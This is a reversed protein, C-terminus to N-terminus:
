GSLPQNQPKYFAIANDTLVAQAATEGLTELIIEIDHDQFPIPARTGPLDTGFMLAKPNADHLLSIADAAAFDVRGFGTAKVRVGAEVLKVLTPLGAKKLGLHDICVAPLRHITAALQGLNSADVYLEVHWGVLEHVRSAMSSLHRLDESGGRYLNFRLARVGAKNLEIIQYDPADSPLQTVGVFGAGLADLAALLYTQDFGQFSGSVIAGGCVDFRSVRELYAEATFADPLYGNNAVLPFRPDIIHLHSDFVRIRLTPKM